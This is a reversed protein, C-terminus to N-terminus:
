SNLVILSPWVCCLLHFELFILFFAGLPLVRHSPVDQHSPRLFRLWRQSHQTVTVKLFKGVCTWFKFCSSFPWLLSHSSSYAINVCLSTSESLWFSYNIELTKLCTPLTFFFNFTVYFFHMEFQWAEKKCFYIGSFLM